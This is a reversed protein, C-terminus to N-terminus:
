KRSERKLIKELRILNGLKDYLVERREKRITGELLHAKEQNEIQPNRVELEEQIARFLKNELQFLSAMLNSLKDEWLAEAELLEPYLEERVQQVKLWRTEYAKQLGLHWKDGFTEKQTENESELAMEYEYIAPNRVGRISDRYRFCLKLIRKALDYESHGHLQHKWTSLGKCAVYAGTLAAFTLCIDKLVSFFFTVGFHPGHDFFILNTLRKPSLM